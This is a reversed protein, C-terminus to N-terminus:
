GWSSACASRTRCGTPSRVSPTSGEFYGVLFCRFYVGPAISPRGLTPAYYKRCIREVYRDFKAGTCSRMSGAISPAPPALECIAPTSGCRPRSRGPQQAPRWRGLIPLHVVAVAGNSQVQGSLGFTGWRERGLNATPGGAGKSDVQVSRLSHFLPINLSGHRRHFRRLQKSRKTRTGQAEHVGCVSIRRYHSRRARRNPRDVQAAM